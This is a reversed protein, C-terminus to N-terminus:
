YCAKAGDMWILDVNPLMERLQWSMEACYECTKKDVFLEITGKIKNSKNVDCTKSDNYRIGVSLEARIKHVLYELAKKESEFEAYPRGARPGSTNIRTADLFYRQRSEEEPTKVTEPIKTQAGPIAKIVGQINNGQNNSLNYKIVTIPTVEPNAHIGDKGPGTPYDSRLKDAIAKLSNYYNDVSGYYQGGVDCVHSLRLYSNIPKIVVPLNHLINGNKIAPITILEGFPRSTYVGAPVVSTNDGHPCGVNSKGDWVHISRSRFVYYLGDATTVESRSNAQYPLFPRIRQSNFIEEERSNKIRLNMIGKVRSPDVSGVEAKYKDARIYILGDLPIKNGSPKLPSKVVTEPKIQQTSFGPDETEEIGSEAEIPFLNVEETNSVACGQSFCGRVKAKAPKFDGQLFAESAHYDTLHMVFRNQDAAVVPPTDVVLDGGFDPSLTQYNFAPQGCAEPPNNVKGELVISLDEMLVASNLSISPNCRNRTKKKWTAKNRYFNYCGGATNVGYFSQNIQELDQSRAQLGELDGPGSESGPVQQVTFDALEQEAQAIAQQNIQKMWAVKQRLVEVGEVIDDNQADLTAKNEDLPEPESYASLDVPPPDVQQQQIRFQAVNPISQLQFNPAQPFEAKIETMMLDVDRQMVRLRKQVSNLLDQIGKSYYLDTEAPHPTDQGVQLAAQRVAGNESLQVTYRGEPVLQNQQNTGHWSLVQPGQGRQYWLTSNSYDKVELLWNSQEGSPRVDIDVWDFRQDRNAPSMIMEGTPTPEGTPVNGHRISLELSQDVRLSRTLTQDGSKLVFTYKGLPLEQNLRDKGEWRIRASGNQGGSPFWVLAGAENYAKLDWEQGRRASIKLAAWDYRNDQNRPSIVIEGTPPTEGNPINDHEIEFQFTHKIRIQRSAVITNASSLQVTYLGDPLFDESFSIEGNPAQHVTVKTAQWNTSFDNQDTKELLTEQAENLIKLTWTEQPMYLVRIEAANDQDDQDAPSFIPPEEFGSPNGITIDLGWQNQIQITHTLTQGNSTLQITYTGNALFQGELNQGSWTYDQASFPYGDQNWVIEGSSNLVNLQWNNIGDNIVRFIAMENKNTQLTIEGVPTPADSPLTGPRIELGLERACGQSTNSQGEPCTCGYFKMESYQVYCDRDSDFSCYLNQEYACLESDFGGGYLAAYYEDWNGTQQYDCVSMSGFDCPVQPASQAIGFHKQLPSGLPKYKSEDVLPTSRLDKLTKLQVKDLDGGNKMIKNKLLTPLTKSKSAMLNPVNKLLDSAPAKNQTPTPQCAWLSLGLSASIMLNVYTKKM